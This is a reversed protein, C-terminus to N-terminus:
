QIARTGQYGGAVLGTATEGVVEGPTQAGAARASIARHIDRQVEDPRAGGRAIKTAQILPNRAEEPTEPAFVARVPTSVFHAAGLPVDIALGKAIGRAIAAGRGEPERRAPEAAVIDAAPENIPIPRGM